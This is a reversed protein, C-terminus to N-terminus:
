GQWFKQVQEIYEEPDMPYGLGHGAGPVSVFLKKTPCNEYLLKSMDHPVFDDTDGHIFIIPITTNRVAALVDADEVDFGGFLKGAWRVMPYIIGLPLRLDGIVKKIIDPASSYGCDALVGIVNEPLPSGATLMVTAAGMSIGTLIIKVEPGFHNIVHEVWLRCDKTENVGFSIVHGDSRGGARQDVILASHGLKFCRQVGGSLDREASGRYGPFMIEIPSDPSCEYYRGRLTLGDFSVISMEEYPMQRAEKMWYIMSTHFPEYIDGEPVPFTNEDPETRKKSYYTIFFCVYLPGLILIILAVIMIILFWFLKM